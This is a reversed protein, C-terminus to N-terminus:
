KTVIFWDSATTGPAGPRDRLQLAQRTFDVGAVNV